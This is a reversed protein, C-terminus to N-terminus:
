LFELAYDALNSVMSSADEQEYEQIVKDNVVINYNYLHGPSVIEAVHLDKSEPQSLIVSMVKNDNNNEAVSVELDTNELLENVEDVIDQAFMM